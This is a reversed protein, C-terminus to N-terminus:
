GGSKRWESNRSRQDRVHYKQSRNKRLKISRSEPKHRIELHTALRQWGNSLEGMLTGVTNQGSSYVSIGKFQDSIEPRKM